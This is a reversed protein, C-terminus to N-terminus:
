NSISQVSSIIKAFSEPDLCAGGVLAGNIQPSTFLKEANDPKVSGGYIVRITNRGIGWKEEISQGIAAHIETAQEVTAAKGTGIAWVPEYAITVQKLDDSTVDHLGELLQQEILSRTKGTERDERSEGVCLIPSLDHSLASRVKQNIFGNTEGFHQRRESHGLIVYQCGLDRLMPLSVEGTYAGEKQDHVNQAALKIPTSGIMDHVAHLATFPPAVVVEVNVKHNYLKLFDQAFRIGESATKHMKWNGAILTPLM